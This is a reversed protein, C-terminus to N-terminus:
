YFFLSNFYHDSSTYKEGDNNYEGSIEELLEDYPYYGIPRLETEGKRISKYRKLYKKRYYKFKLIWGLKGVAIYWAVLSVVFIPAM